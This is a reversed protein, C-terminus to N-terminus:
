REEALVAGGHEGELHCKIDEMRPREDVCTRTYAYSTASDVVSMTAEYTTRKFITYDMGQQWDCEQNLNNGTITTPCAIRFITASPNASEITVDPAQYKAAHPWLFSLTANQAIVLGQYAALAVIFNRM